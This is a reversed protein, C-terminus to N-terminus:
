PTVIKVAGTILAWILAVVSGGLLGGVWVLIKHAFLIPSIKETISKIDNEIRAIVSIELRELRGQHNEVAGVIRQHEVTYRREFEQQARNMLRIEDRVEALTTQM